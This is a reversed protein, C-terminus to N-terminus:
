GRRRSAPEVLDALAMATRGRISTEASVKCMTSKMMIPIETTSDEGGSKQLLDLAESTEPATRILGFLPKPVGAGAVFRWRTDARRWRLLSHHWDVVEKLRVLAAGMSVQAHVAVERITSLSRPESQYNEQMWRYPLLIGAAIEDCMREIDNRPAGDRKAVLTPRDEILLHALEHAITFRRRASGLDPRLLIRINGPTIELRGDEV